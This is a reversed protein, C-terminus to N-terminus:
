RRMLVRVCVCADPAGVDGQITFNTGASGTIPSVWSLRPTVAAAPDFTYVASLSVTTPALSTALHRAHAHAQSGEAVGHRVRLYRVVFGYSQYRRRFRWQLRMHASAVARGCINSRAVDTAGRKDFAVYLHHRNYLGLREKLEHPVISPSHGHLRTMARDSHSLARRSTAFAPMRMVQLAPCFSPFLLPTVAIVRLTPIMPAYHLSLKYPPLIQPLPVRSTPWQRNRHFVQPLGAVTVNMTVALAASSASAMPPTLLVITTPTSSVVTANVGGFSM